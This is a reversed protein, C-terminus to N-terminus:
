RAKVPSVLVDTDRFRLQQIPLCEIMPKGLFFKQIVDAQLEDLDVMPRSHPGLISWYAVETLDCDHRAGPLQCRSVLLQQFNM